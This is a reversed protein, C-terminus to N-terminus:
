WLPWRDTSTITSCLWELEPGQGCVQQPHMTGGVEMDYPQHIICNQRSWYEGLAFIMEQLNM